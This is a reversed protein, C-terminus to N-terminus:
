KKSDDCCKAKPQGQPRKGHHGCQKNDKDEPGGFKDRPGEPRPGPQLQANVISNELFTVYQEPTLINKLSHLMNLQNQRQAERALSDAQCRQQCKQKDAEARSKGLEEIASRQADTLQVSELASMVPCPREPANPCQQETQPKQKCCQKNDPQQAFALSGAAVVSIALALFKTKM